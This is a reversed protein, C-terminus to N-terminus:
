VRPSTNTPSASNPAGVSLRLARIGLESRRNLIAALKFLSRLYLENNGPEMVCGFIVDAMSNKVGDDITEGNRLLREAARHSAERLASVEKLKQSVQVDYWRHLTTAPIRRDAFHEKLFVGDLEDWEWKESERELQEWTLWKARLAIIRERWSGPLRDIAFPQRKKRREGTKPRVKGM